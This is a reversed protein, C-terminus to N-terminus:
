SSARIHGIKAPQSYRYFRRLEPQLEAARFRTALRPWLAACYKAAYYNAYEYRKLEAPGLDSGFSPADFLWHHLSRPPRAGQRHLLMTTAVFKDVEAQLEMELLTVPKEIGARYAYYTFHSVGEFALWFDALNSASLRAIPDDKSLREVLDAHLYLSVAADDGGECILLKEETNRGGENLAGALAEDTILFDYIDYVVGLDYFDSLLAQLHSLVM